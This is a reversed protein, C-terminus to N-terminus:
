GGPYTEQKVTSTLKSQMGSGSLVGLLCTNDRPIKSVKINKWLSGGALGLALGFVVSPPRRGALVLGVSGLEYYM